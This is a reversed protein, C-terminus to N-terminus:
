LATPGPNIWGGFVKDLETAAALTLHDKYQTSIAQIGIPLNRSLGAPIQTSPYGLISFICTYAINPYKPITMLYHPPPDPHTPILLIADGQLYEELKKKLEDYMELCRFLLIILM